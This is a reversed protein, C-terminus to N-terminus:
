YMIIVLSDLLKGQVPVREHTVKVILIPRGISTDFNTQEGGMALDHLTENEKNRSITCEKRM